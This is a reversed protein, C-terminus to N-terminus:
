HAAVLMKKLSTMLGNWMHEEVDWASTENTNMENCLSVTNQNFDTALYNLWDYKASLMKQYIRFLITRDLRLRLVMQEFDRECEDIIWYLAVWQEATTMWPRVNALMRAIAAYDLSKRKLEPLVESVDLLLLLHEQSDRGHGQRGGATSTHEHTPKSANQKPRQEPPKNQAEAKAERKLRHWWCQRLHGFLEQWSKYRRYCSACEFPKRQM